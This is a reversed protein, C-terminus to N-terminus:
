AYGSIMANWTILGKKPMANFLEQAYAVAGCKVYMTLLCNSVSMSSDLVVKVCCGHLCRGLSLHVPLTCVRVLGLMTVSDVLVGAERMKHFLFVADYIRLNLTYGSILANYCITLRKSEGNEDFVKRAYEISSCKCYMSILSTQM